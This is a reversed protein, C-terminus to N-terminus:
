YMGKHEKLKEVIINGVLKSLGKRDERSMAKVDVPDCYEIVMTARCIRPFQKEMISYSNSIAVPILPCGSKDAIKFSGEHFPLLTGEEGKNRTGEPFIFISTGNKVEEICNLIMQLGQRMNSRDLFQCRINRMWLSFLPVKRFEVKAVFGTPRFARSYTSIVDFYSRHNGIYLVGCDRPIKEEGIVKLRTGAFFLVTKFGFKIIGLSAVDKAHPSMLGVIWLILSVPILVILYLVVFIIIFVFRIM